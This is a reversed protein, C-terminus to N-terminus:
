SIRPSMQGLSLWAPDGDFRVAVRTSEDENLLAPILFEAERRVRDTM